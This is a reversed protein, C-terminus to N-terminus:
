KIFISIESMPFIEFSEQGTLQAFIKNESTTITLNVGPAMEYEGIYEEYVVPDIDAVQKEEEPEARYCEIELGLQKFVLM